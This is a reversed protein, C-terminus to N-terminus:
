FTSRYPAGCLVPVRTPHTTSVASTLFTKDPQSAKWITWRWDAQDCATCTARPLVSRVPDFAKAFYIYVVDTAEDQDLYYSVIHTSQFRLVPFRLVLSPDFLDFVSVVPFHPVLNGPCSIAPGFFAPHFICSRFIPSWNWQTFLISFFHCMILQLKLLILYHQVQPVSHHVSLVFIKQKLETISNTTTYTHLAVAKRSKEYTDSM